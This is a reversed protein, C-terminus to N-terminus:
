GARATERQRVPLRSLSTSSGGLPVGAAQCLGWMLTQNASLVPV